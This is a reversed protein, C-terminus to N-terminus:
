KSHLVHVMSAMDIYIATTALFMPGGVNISGVQWTGWKGCARDIRKKLINTWPDRKTKAATLQRETRWRENLTTRCM